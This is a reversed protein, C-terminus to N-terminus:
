AQCGDHRALDIDCCMLRHVSLRHSPSLGDLVRYCRCTNLHHVRKGSECQTLLKRLGFICMSQQEELFVGRLKDIAGEATGILWPLM